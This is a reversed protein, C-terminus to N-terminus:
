VVELLESPLMIRRQFESYFLRPNTSRYQFDSVFVYMNSSRYIFCHPPFNIVPFINKPTVPHLSTFSHFVLLIFVRYLQVTLILPLAKRLPLPLTCISVMLSSRVAPFASRVVFAM